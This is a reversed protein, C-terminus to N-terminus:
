KKLLKKLREEPYSKKLNDITNNKLTEYIYNQQNFKLSDIKFKESLDYIILQMNNNDIAHQLIILDLSTIPKFIDDNNNDPIKLMKGLKKFNIISINQTNTEM